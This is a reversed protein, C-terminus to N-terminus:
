AAYPCRNRRELSHSNDFEKRGLIIVTAAIRHHSWIVGLPVQWQGIRLAVVEPPLLRRIL